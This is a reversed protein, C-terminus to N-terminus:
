GTELWVMVLQSLVLSRIKQKIYRETKISFDNLHYKNINGTLLIDILGTDKREAYDDIQVM